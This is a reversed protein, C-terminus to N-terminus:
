HNLRPGAWHRVHSWNVNVFGDPQGSAFTLYVTHRGAVAGVNGPV